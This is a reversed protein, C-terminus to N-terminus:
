TQGQTQAQDAPSPNADAPPAPVIVRLAGPLSRYHLPPTMNVVEGDNAVRMRRSRSHIWFEGAETIELDATAQRGMLARIAIGVLKWRGAHPAQYVVLKGDTLSARQGANPATLEYRNNGVFVFPTTTAKNDTEEGTLRVSLLQARRFVRIFARVFAPWKSHGSRQLSERLQVLGPYFGLSSNNLFIEGNVEGVDVRAEVGTFLNAVAEPLTLPIKLDKAFHNLTGMPLVGLTTETGQVIGAVASVTGDGGAAVVMPCKAVADKAHRMIGAGDRALIVRANRGQEAFLKELTSRQEAARNSGATANLICILDAPARRFM